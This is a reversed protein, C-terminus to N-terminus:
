AQHHDGEDHFPPFGRRIAFVKYPVTLEAHVLFTGAKKMENPVSAASNAAYPAGSESWSWAVKANSAADISIGTVM